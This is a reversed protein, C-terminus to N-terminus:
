SGALSALLLPAGLFMAILALNVCNVRHRFRTVGDPDAVAERLARIRQEASPHLWSSRNLSTGSLASLKWMAAIFEPAQGARYVCTDADFELLRSYRGLVLFAYLMVAGTIVLCQLTSVTTAGTAAAQNLFQEVQPHTIRLCGFIWIPLALLLMRLLLHRRQIHGLEHVFVAAIEEDDLHELLADTLFVRRTRALVGAVAANMVQGQTDWIRFDRCVVGQRRALRNLRDRL